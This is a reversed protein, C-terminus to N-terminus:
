SLGSWGSYLIVSVKTVWVSASWKLTSRGWCCNLYSSSPSFPNGRRREADLRQFIIVWGLQFLKRTQKRRIPSAWDLGAPSMAVRHRTISISEPILAAVSDCKRPLSCALPKAAPAVNLWHFGSLFVRFDGLIQKWKLCTGVNHLFPKFPIELLAFSKGRKEVYQTHKYVHGKKSNLAVEGADPHFYDSHLQSWATSSWQQPEMAPQLKLEITAIHSHLYFTRPDPLPLSCVVSWVSNYNSKHYQDM